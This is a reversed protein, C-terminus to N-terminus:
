SSCIVIVADAPNRSSLVIAIPAFALVSMAVHPLATVLTTLTAFTASIQMWAGCKHVSHECFNRFYLIRKHDTKCLNQPAQEKNKVGECRSEPSGSTRM